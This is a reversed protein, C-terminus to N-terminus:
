GPPALHGAIVSAFTRTDIPKSICGNCGAALAKEEDRKAAYDTMALIIIHRTPPSGRLRQTLELGDMGPLQLDMLILAPRLTQLITLAEGADIATRVDYGEKTLLTLVLKLGSPDNDVVLIPRSYM